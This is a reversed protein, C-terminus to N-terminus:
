YYSPNPNFFSTSQLTDHPYVINFVKRTNRKIDCDDLKEHDENNFGLFINYYYKGEDNYSVVKVDKIKPYEDKLMKLIITRLTENNTM